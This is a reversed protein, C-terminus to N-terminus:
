WFPRATLLVSKPGMKLCLDLDGATSGTELSEKM